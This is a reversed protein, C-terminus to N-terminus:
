IINPSQEFYLTWQANRKDNGVMTNYHLIPPRITTPKRDVNLSGEELDLSEEVLVDFIDYVECIPVTGPQKM